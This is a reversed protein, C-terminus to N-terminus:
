PHHPTPTLAPALRHRTPRPNNSGSVILSEQCRYAEGIGSGIFLLVNGGRDATQKQLSGASDGEENADTSTVNGLFACERVTDRSRTVTVVTGPKRSACSTVILSVALLSPLALKM